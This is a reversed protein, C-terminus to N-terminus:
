LPKKKIEIWEMGHIQDAHLFDWCFTVHTCNVFCEVSNCYQDIQVASIYAHNMWIEIRYFSLKYKAISKFWFRGIKCAFETIYFFEIWFNSEHYTWLLPRLMGIFVLAVCFYKRLGYGFNSIRDFRKGDLWRCKFGNLTLCLNYWHFSISQNIQMYVCM